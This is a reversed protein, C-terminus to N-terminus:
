PGGEGAPERCPFVRKMARASLETSPSLPARGSKLALIYAAISETEEATLSQALMRDAQHIPSRGVRVALSLGDWDAKLTRLPPADCMRSVGRSGVAHCTSCRDIAAQEGRRVRQQDAAPLATACATAALICFLLPATRRLRSAPPRRGPADATGRV